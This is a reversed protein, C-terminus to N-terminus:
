YRTAIKVLSETLRNLDTVNELKVNHSSEVGLNRRKEKSTKIFLLSMQICNITYRHDIEFHFINVQIRIFNGQGRIYDV